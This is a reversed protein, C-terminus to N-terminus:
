SPQVVTTRQHADRMYLGAGTALGSFIVFLWLLTESLM